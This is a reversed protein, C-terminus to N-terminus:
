KIARAIKTFPLAADSVLVASTHSQARRLLRSKIDYIITFLKKLNMM